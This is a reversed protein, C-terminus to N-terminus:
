EIATAVVTTQLTLDDWLEITITMVPFSGVLRQQIGGDPVTRCAATRTRAGCGTPKKSKEATESFIGRM